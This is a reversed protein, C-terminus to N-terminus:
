KTGKAKEEDVRGQRWLYFAAVVTMCVCVTISLPLPLDKLLEAVAPISVGSVAATSLKKSVNM